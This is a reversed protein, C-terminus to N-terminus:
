GGNEIQEKAKALGEDSLLGDKHMKTMNALQEKQKEDLVKEEVVEEKVDESSIQKSVKKPEEPTPVDVQAPMDEEELKNIKTISSAKYVEGDENKADYDDVNVECWKGIFADTDFGKPDFKWGLAEFVHTIRANKTVATRYENTKADKYESNLVQALILQESPKEPDMIKIPKNEDTYIGFLLIIQRGYKGEIWNGEKDQRPKVQSLMAKYYGKKIKPRKGSIAVKDSAKMLM